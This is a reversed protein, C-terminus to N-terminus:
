KATRIKMLAKGVKFDNETSLDLNLYPVGLLMPVTFDGPGSMEILTVLEREEIPYRTKTHSPHAMEERLDVETRKCHACVMPGGSASKQKLHHCGQGDPSDPCLYNSPSFPGDKPNLAPHLRM